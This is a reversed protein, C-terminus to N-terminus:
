SVYKMTDIGLHAFDGPGLGTMLGADKCSRDGARITITQPVSPMIGREGM